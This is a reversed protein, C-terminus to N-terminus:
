ADHKGLADILGMRACLAADDQALLSAVLASLTPTLPIESPPNM